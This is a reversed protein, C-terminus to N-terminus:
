FNGSECSQNNQVTKLQAVLNLSLKQLKSNAVSYQFHDVLYTKNAFYWGNLM